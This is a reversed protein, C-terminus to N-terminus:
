THVSAYHEYLSEHSKYIETVKDYDVRKLIGDSWDLGRLDNAIKPLFTNRYKPLIGVKTDNILDLKQQIEWMNFRRNEAWNRSYIAQNINKMLNIVAEKKHGSHIVKNLRPIPKGNKDVIMYEFLANTQKELLKEGYKGFNLGAEDMPDSALGVAARSVGRFSRLNDEGKKARVRLRLPYKFDKHHITTYYTGNDM